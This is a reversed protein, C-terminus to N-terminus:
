KILDHLTVANKLSVASEGGLLIMETVADRLDWLYDDVVAPVTNNRVLLIGTEAVSAVAAGTLADAFKEGTAIVFCSHDKGEAIKKNKALKVATEYRDAGWVRTVDGTIDLLEEVVDASVAAPGGVVFVELDSGLELYDEVCEPLGDQKTLLIPLGYPAASLADAFKEGSAVIVEDGEGLEEAIKVATEYRNEGGIRDIEIGCSIDTDRSVARKLENEVGKSIASEGGLVFVKFDGTGETGEWDSDKLYDLLAKKTAPHLRDSNTLLIPANKSAAFPAGALADAFDDGRALVVADVETITGPNDNVEPLYLANHFIRVATEYRNEGSIRYIPGDHLVVTGRHQLEQLIKMQASDPSAPFAKGDAHINLFDLKLNRIPTLDLKKNDYSLDLTKLKTAFELGALNAVPVQDGNDDLGATLDKLLQMDKKAIDTVSAFSEDEAALTAIVADKLADDKFVVSAAAAMAPVALMLVVLLLVLSRRKLM